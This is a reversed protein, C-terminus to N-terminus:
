GEALRLQHTESREVWEVPWIQFTPPSIGYSSFGFPTMLIELESLDFIEPSGDVRRGGLVSRARSSSSGSAFFTAALTSSMALNRCTIPEPLSSSPRM